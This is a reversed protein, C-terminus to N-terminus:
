KRDGMDAQIDSNDLTKSSVNPYVQEKGNDDQFVLTQKGFANEHEDILTQNSDSLTADLPQRARASPAQNGGKFLRPEVM